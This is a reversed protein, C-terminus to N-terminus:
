TSEIIELMNRAHYLASQSLFVSHKYFLMCSITEAVRVLIKIQFYTLSCINQFPLVHVYM